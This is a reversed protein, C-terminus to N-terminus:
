DECSNIVYERFVPPLKFLIKDAKIKNVVYRQQLSQLGKVFDVSSLPLNQKLDERSIPQDLKSLELIIQQEIPSLRNFLDNFLSQMNQTIILSNETLFDTVEGDYIDQILSVVEKLYILNGEYLQILKLWSDQNNLGTNELIHIDDLGLLELCKIPYLQQDLSQMEACKEQSILIINSQHQTTTLMTLFNQYDQYPINYKGALEGREFINQVDDLIILCEKENLITFLQELKAQITNQPEEQCIHLFDNVLLDLPQPYKLSKWIIVECQELNLDVFKKVLATKGIGSLGLISILRINQNFIWDALTKLETERNYFKIIQPALTLDYYASQSKNDIDKEQTQKNLDNSIIPNCINRDGNINCVNLCNDFSQIYLRELVSRCNTKKIDEGLAESLLKWLEGGVDGVHSKNFHNNEAIENYTEGEYAGKVVAIQVDDLHKGTHEFFLQDVFQLIEMVNM